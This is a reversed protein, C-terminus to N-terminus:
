LLPPPPTTLIRHLDPVPDYMQTRQVAMAEPPAHFRPPPSSLDPPPVHPSNWPGPWAGPPPPPGWINPYPPPPMSWAPRAPPWRPPPFPPWAAPFRHQTRAVRAPPCPQPSRGDTGAQKAPARPRRGGQDLQGDGRLKRNRRVQREQEDDSFDVCEPPPENNNEWSADSGRLKRVESELVYLTVDAHLPAYFVATGPALGQGALEQASNFRVVYFPRSVPGFVDFVQGLPAGGSVFLVSDLDLVPQGACSEIVLLRDVVSHVIGAQRLEAQPVTIHLEEIPPLEDIDLEGPTKLGVTRPRGQLRGPPGKRKASPRPESVADDSDDSSDANGAAEDESSSSSSSSDSHNRYPVLSVRSLSRPGCSSVVTQQARGGEPGWQGDGNVVQDVLFNVVDVADAIGDVADAIEDVTDAVADDVTDAVGDDLAVAVRNDVADAVGDDLADAVRNDVTDAVRNDVADAVGDDVADAVGDDVADAVREDVADVVVDVGNDQQLRPATEQQPSDTAAAVHEVSNQTTHGDM